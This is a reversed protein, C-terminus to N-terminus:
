FKLHLIFNLSYITNLKNFSVNPNLGLAFKKNIYYLLKLKIPVAFSQNENNATTNNQTIFGLGTHTELIFHEALIYERGYLVTVEYYGELDTNNTENKGFGFGLTNSFTFLNAKYSTTVDLTTNLLFLANQNNIKYTGICYEISHFKLKDQSFIQSFTILCFLLLLKRM